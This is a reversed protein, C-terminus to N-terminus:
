LSISQELMPVDSDNGRDRRHAAMLAFNIAGLLGDSALSAWAAGVWGNRPILWLNLGINFISVVVQAVTRQNQFGTATLASGSLQHIARFVPLWCLWRIALAAEAFDRGVLHPIWKSSLLTFVAAAFGIAVGIRIMKISARSVAEFGHRSLSFLRPMAASVLATIPTTAFDVVRYAMTYFGSAKNMGYHSLMIKDFDNYFSETSGAVSFGIGEWFHARAHQFSFTMQGIASRVWALVIIAALSTSILVGVAWQFATATHITFLMIALTVVRMLNSLLRNIAASRVRHITLFVTSACMTIQSMVCNTIVLILILDLQSSGILRPGIWALSIGIISSVGLITAITNGWHANATSRDLSVYRMFLMASGLASYPAVTNVLAYAGAFIGYSTVGLLRALLVFYGAQLFFNIGQGVM